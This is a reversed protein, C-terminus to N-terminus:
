SNEKPPVATTSQPGPKAGMHSLESLRSTYLSMMFEVGHVDVMVLDRLWEGVGPYGLERARRKALEDTNEDLKTKVVKTLKGLPCSRGRSFTPPQSM